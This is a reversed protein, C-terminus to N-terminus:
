YRKLYGMEDKNWVFNVNYSEWLALKTWMITVITYDNRYVLNKSGLAWRDFQAWPEDASRRGPSMRRDAGPSMRRVAGPRLHACRAELYVHVPIAWLIIENDGLVIVSIKWTHKFNVLNYFCHRGTHLDIRRKINDIHYFDYRLVRLFFNWFLPEFYLINKKQIKRRKKSFMLKFTVRVAHVHVSLM